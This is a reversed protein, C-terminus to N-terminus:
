TGSAPLARAYALLALGLPIIWLALLPLHRRAVLRRLGTTALRAALFAIMAGIAFAAPEFAGSITIGASERAAAVLLSPVTILLALDVARDARAGLWFLVTLAAGVRSAGPFVALGHAIGVLAALPISPAEPAM